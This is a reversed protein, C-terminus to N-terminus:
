CPRRYGAGRGRPARRGPLRQACGSGRGRPEAAGRAPVQADIANLTGVMTM